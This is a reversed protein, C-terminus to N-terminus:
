CINKESTIYTKAESTAIGRYVGHITEYETGSGNTYGIDVRYPIDRDYTYVVQKITVRECAPVPM